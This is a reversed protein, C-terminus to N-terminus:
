GLSRLYEKTKIGAEKAFKVIAKVLLQGKEDEPLKRILSADIKIYDM